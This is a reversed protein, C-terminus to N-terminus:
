GRDMEQDMEKSAFGISVVTNGTMTSSNGASSLAELLVGFGGLRKGVVSRLSGVSLMEALEQMDAVKVSQMM